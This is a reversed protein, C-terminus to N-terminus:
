RAAAFATQKEALTSLFTQESELDIMSLTMAAIMARKNPADTAEVATRDRAMRELVAGIAKAEACDEITAEGRPQKEQLGKTM